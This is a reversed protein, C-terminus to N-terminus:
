PTQVGGGFRIFQQLSIINNGYARNKAVVKGLFLYFNLKEISNEDFIELIKEFNGLLTKRGLARFLLANNTLM